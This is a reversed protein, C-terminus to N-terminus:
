LDDDGELAGRIQEETFGRQRLFRAQRVREDFEGPIDEGFRKCRAARAAGCWMEDRPAVYQGILEAALGRERLGAAIRVPGQGRRRHVHVFAEAFRADSLLGEACLKDLEADIAGDDEIGGAGLKTVLKARLEGVSYERRALLDM